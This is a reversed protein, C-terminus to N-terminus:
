TATVDGVIGVGGSVLTRVVGGPYTVQLDWVASSRAPFGDWGAAHLTVGIENPLTIAVGLAALLAGGHVERIEALATAGTLDAPTGGIADEWVRFTQAWTDGRYLAVDHRAPLSM